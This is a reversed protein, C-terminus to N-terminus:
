QCLEKKKQANKKEKGLKLNCIIECQHDNSFLLVFTSRSLIMRLLRMLLKIVIKNKNKNQQSEILISLFIFNIATYQM